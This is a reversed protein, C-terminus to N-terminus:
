DHTKDVTCVHCAAFCVDTTDVYAYRDSLYQGKGSHLMACDFLYFKQTMELHPWCVYGCLGLSYVRVCVCM